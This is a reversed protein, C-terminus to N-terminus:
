IAIHRRTAQQILLALRTCACAWARADVGVYVCMCEGVLARVCACFYTITIAKGSTEHFRRLIVYM